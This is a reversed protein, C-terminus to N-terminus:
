LPSQLFEASSAVDERKEHLRTLRSASYQFRDDVFFNFFFIVDCEYKFSYNDSNTLCIKRRFNAFASLVSLIVFFFFM